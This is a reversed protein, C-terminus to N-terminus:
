SRARLVAWGHPTKVIMCNYTYKYIHFLDRFRNPPDSRRQPIQARERTWHPDVDSMCEKSGLLALDIRGGLGEFAEATRAHDLDHSRMMTIGPTSDIGHTKM